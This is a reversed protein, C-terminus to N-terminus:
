REQPWTRDIFGELPGFPNQNMARLVQSVPARREAQVSKRKRLVAPLGRLADVKARLIAPGQGRLILYVVTLLGWALHLPLYFWNWPAPMDKFYTWVLNRHGHYTAFDSRPGSSGAGVHHVVASPVLWCRLGRLRLRFGLDVDEHYAFYDDDFGGADLFQQRPYFAAAACASFVEKPPGPPYHPVNYNRRMALGSTFYIDGDGDLLKPHVVQIQRSAFFADPFTAAADMLQELWDPEPFADSNLMALWKGSAMRAGLNSAAAFGVNSELRELRLQLGPWKRALDRTSGDTSANDVVITEFDRFTQAKLAELCRPLYEGSNRCVIIISVSCTISSVGM